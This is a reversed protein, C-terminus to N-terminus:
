QGRKWNVSSLLSRIDSSLSPWIRELIQKDNLSGLVAEVRGNTVPEDTIELMLSATRYGEGFTAALDDPDVKRVSAPDSMDDFTVFLPYHDRPMPGSKGVSKKIAPGRVEAPKKLTEADLVVYQAVTDLGGLLVFMYRRPAVELVVAEGSLWSNVRNVLKQQNMTVKQVSSASKPSEPTEITLTLKQRWSWSPALFVFFGGVLVAVAVCCALVAILFRRM